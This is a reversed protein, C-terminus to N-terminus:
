SNRQSKRKKPLAPWVSVWVIKYAATSAEHDDRLARLREVKRLDDLTAARKEQKPEPKPTPDTIEEISNALQFTDAAVSKIKAVKM